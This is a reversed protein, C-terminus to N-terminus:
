ASRPTLSKVYNDLDARRIRPSREGVDVVPLEGDRVLRKLKTLSVSLYDAAGPFTLLAPGGPLDAVHM